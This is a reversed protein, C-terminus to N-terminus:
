GACVTYSGAALGFIRYIGRDDTTSTEAEEARLTTGRSDKIRFARVVVPTVAAGNGDSVKGTIAAGKRMSITAFDGARYFESLSQGGWAVFGPQRAHIKFPVPGLGKGQVRGNQDCSTKRDYAVPGGRVPHLTVSAYPLPRGGDGLVRGSIGRGTLAAASQGVRDHGRAGFHAAPGIPGSGNFFAILACSRAAAIPSRVCVPM